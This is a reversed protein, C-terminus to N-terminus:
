LFWTGRWRKMRSSQRQNEFSSVAERMRAAARARARGARVQHPNRALARRCQACLAGADHLRV